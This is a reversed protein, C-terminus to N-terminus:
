KVGYQKLIDERSRPASKPIAASSTPALGLRLMSARARAPTGYNEDVHQLIAMNAEYSQSPDSLSDLWSQLEINSDMQKSSMGSAKAINQALPRRFATIQSRLSQAKPNLLGPDLKAALRHGTYTLGGQNESPVADMGKLQKYLNGIEGLTRSVDNQPGAQNAEKVTPRGARGGTEFQGVAQRIAPVDDLTLKDNPGKGTAATIKATYNAVSAASNEPGIPAYKQVFSTPTAGGAIYRTILSMHAADGAERTPFKAFASNPDKQGGFQSMWPAYKMGGVNNNALITSDGAAPVGMEPINVEGTHKDYRIFNGSNPDIAGGFLPPTSALKAAIAPQNPVLDGYQSGQRITTDTPDAPLVTGPQTEKLAMAIGNVNSVDPLVQFGGALPKVEGAKNAVTTTPQGDPGLMRTPDGFTQQNELKKGFADVVPKIFDKVQEDDGYKTYVDTVANQDGSQLAKAIEAIKADHATKIRTSLAGTEKTVDNSELKAFLANGLQELVGGLGTNKPNFANSYLQNAIARKQELSALDTEFGTSAKSLDITKPVFEMQAM